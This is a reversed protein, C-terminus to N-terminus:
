CLDGQVEASLKKAFDNWIESSELYGHLLVVPTGEGIDNYYIKGGNFAFFM